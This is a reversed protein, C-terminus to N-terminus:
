EGLLTNLRDVLARDPLSGIDKKINEARSKVEKRVTERTNTLTGLQGKVNELENVVTKVDVGAPSFLAWLLLAGGGIFLFLVVSLIIKDATTFTNKKYEM